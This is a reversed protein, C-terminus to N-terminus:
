EEQILRWKEPNRRALFDDLDIVRVYVALKLDINQDFEQKHPIRYPKMYYVTMNNEGKMEDLVSWCICFKDVFKKVPIM